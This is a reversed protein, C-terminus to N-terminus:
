KLISLRAAQNHNKGYVRIFYLGNKFQNISLSVEQQGTALEPKKLTKLVTGNIDVIEITIPGAQKLNYSVNVVDNAPNPYLKLLDTLGSVSEIPKAAIRATPAISTCYDLQEFFESMTIVSDRLQERATVLCDWYNVYSQNNIPAFM